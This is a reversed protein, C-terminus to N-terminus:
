SEGNWDMGTQGFGFEKMGNWDMGFGVKDIWYV